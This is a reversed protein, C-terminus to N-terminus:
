NEELFDGIDTKLVVPFTIDVESLYTTNGLRLRRYCSKKQVDEEDIKM